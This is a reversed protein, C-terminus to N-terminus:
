SGILGCESPCGGTIAEAHWSPRAGKSLSMAAGQVQFPAEQRHLTTAQFANPLHVSPIKCVIVSLQCLTLALWRGFRRCVGKCLQLAFNRLLLLKALLKLGNSWLCVSPSPMGFIGGSPAYRVLFTHQTALLNRCCCTETNSIPENEIRPAMAPCNLKPLLSPASKAHLAHDQSSPREELLVLLSNEM